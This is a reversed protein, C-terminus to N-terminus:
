ANAKEKSKKYKAKSKAEQDRIKASTLMESFKATRVVKSVQYQNNIYKNYSTGAEYDNSHLFAEAFRPKVNIYHYVIGSRFYIILNGDGRTEKYNWRAKEFIISTPFEKEIGRDTRTFEKYKNKPM